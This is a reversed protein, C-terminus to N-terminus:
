TKSPAAELYLKVMIYFIRYLKDIPCQINPITCQASYMNSYLYVFSLNLRGFKIMAKEVVEPSSTLTVDKKIMVQIDNMGRM